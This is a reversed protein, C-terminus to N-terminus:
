MVGGAESSLELCGLRRDCKSRTTGSQLRQNIADAPCVKAGATGRQEFYETHHIADKTTASFGFYRRVAFKNRPLLPRRTLEAGACCM